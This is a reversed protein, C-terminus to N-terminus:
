SSKPSKTVRKLPFPKQRVKAKSSVASKAPTKLSKVESPTLPRWQGSKLNGLRLSGIRVRIISVVTLGILGCTDRIQRKKGGKMTVTLWTGKGSHSEIEVQAPQSRTGDEFVV